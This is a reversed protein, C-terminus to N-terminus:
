RVVLLQGIDRVRIEGNIHVGNHYEVDLLTEYVHVHSNGVKGYVCVSASAFGNMWPKCTHKLMHMSSTISVVVSQM